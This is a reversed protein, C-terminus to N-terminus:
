NKAKIITGDTVWLDFIELAKDTFAKDNIHADIETVIIPDTAAMKLTDTFAKLGDPDYTDGGPRDWEEIGNKPIILHVPSKSKTLRSAYDHAIAIREDRSFITSKILKNHIHIHRDRFIEPVNQWGAFDILDMCGPAVIQPIGAQGANLMRNEGAHVISGYLLNGIECGAFDMVCVFGNKQAIGEFAMGGMGMAHFIAVEYGRAELEPKLTTIYKLCSTGLSTIGVIPKNNKPTEVAKAAGLVAGAAQSLSSRCISNLGYLGGAWLIMQIDASLRESPIIPSFSVTSVVYKPLGLPLVKCVDLALDTGMTGGLLIIGDFKGEAHLLKALNSAGESMINMAIHESGSEIATKISKGAAEAVSHKSFDTKGKAEGLVSVDMKLVNGGMSVICDSIYELEEDKTDYTGVILITKRPM